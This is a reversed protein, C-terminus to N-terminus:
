TRIQAFRFPRSTRAYGSANRGWACWQHHFAYQDFGRVDHFRGESSPVFSPIQALVFRAFRIM